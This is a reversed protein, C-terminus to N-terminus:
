ADVVGSTGGYERLHWPFETLTQLETPTPLAIFAQHRSYPIGLVEFMQEQSLDMSRGTADLWSDISKGALPAVRVPIM